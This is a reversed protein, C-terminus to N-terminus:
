KTSWNEQCWVCSCGVRMKDKFGGLAVNIGKSKLVRFKTAQSISEMLLFGGAEALEDETLKEVLERAMKCYPPVMAAQISRADDLLSM